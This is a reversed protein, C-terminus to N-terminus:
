FVPLLSVAQNYNGHDQARIHLPLLRNLWSSTM